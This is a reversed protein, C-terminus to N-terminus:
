NYIEALTVFVDHFTTANKMSLGHENRIRTIAESRKDEIVGAIEASKHYDHSSQLWGSIFREKPYGYLKSRHIAIYESVEMDPIFAQRGEKEYASSSKAM